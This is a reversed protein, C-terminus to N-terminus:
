GNVEATGTALFLAMRSTSVSDVAAIPIVACSFLPQTRNSPNEMHVPHAAPPAPQHCATAGLVFIRMPGFINRSQSPIRALVFTLSVQIAPLAHIPHPPYFRRFTAASNLAKLSPGKRTTSSCRLRLTLKSSLPQSHWWIM